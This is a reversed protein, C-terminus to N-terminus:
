VNIMSGSLSTGNARRFFKAFWANFNAGSPPAKLHDWQTNSHSRGPIHVSRVRRHYFLLSSFPSKVISTNLIVLLFILAHAFPMRTPPDYLLFRPMHLWACIIALFLVCVLHFFFCIAFRAVFSVSPRPFPPLTNTPSLRWFQLWIGYGSAFTVPSSYGSFSTSSLASSSDSSALSTKIIGSSTLSVGDSLASDSYPRLSKKQSPNSM